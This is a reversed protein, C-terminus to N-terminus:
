GTTLDEGSNSSAGMLQRWTVWFHRLRNDDGRTGELAPVGRAILSHRVKRSQVGAQQYAFVPFDEYDLRDQIWAAQSAARAKRTEDDDGRLGLTRNQMVVRAPGDLVQFDISVMNSRLTVIMDPFINVIYAQGPEVGPLPATQLQTALDPDLKQVDSHLVQIAHSNRVL